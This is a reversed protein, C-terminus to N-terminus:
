HGYVVQLSMQCGDQTFIRHYRLTRQFKIEFPEGFFVIKSKNYDHIAHGDALLLM